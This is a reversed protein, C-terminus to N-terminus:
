YFPTDDTVLRLATILYVYQLPLAGDQPNIKRKIIMRMWMLRSPYHGNLCEECVFFIIFILSYVPITWWAFETRIGEAAVSTTVSTTTIESFQSHVASLSTWPQLGISAQAFMSYIILFAILSTQIATSLLQCLFSSTTLPPERTLLHQFFNTRQRFINLLALGINGHISFSKILKLFILANGFYSFAISCLLLPPFWILIIALTSPYIAAQCGFDQVIEFRHNQVVFDACFM